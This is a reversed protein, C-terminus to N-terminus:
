GWRGARCGPGPAPVEYAKFLTELFEQVHPRLKMHVQPFGLM